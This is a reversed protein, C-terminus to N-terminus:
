RCGGTCKKYHELARAEERKFMALRSLLDEFNVRHADFEPGDICALKMEGDIFVRCVGCMGTADVMLPNLSVITKVGFEKTTLAIFKMMVAPGVAVVRDVKGAQLLEKLPVTVVGKRGHSGDDTTVILEDSFKRFRDEWFLIDKSRAGLITVIRNGAKKLARAIPHLSAIGTGGGVCVVTGFKGMESPRGLPGMIDRISQGVKFTGLENTTKGSRKVIITVTGKDQDADAITLPIREGHENIRIVLFQGAQFHAAIEPAEVEILFDESTLEEKRLIPHGGTESSDIREPPATKFGM